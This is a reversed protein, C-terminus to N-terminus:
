KRKNNTGNKKGKILEEIMRETLDGKEIINDKSWREVNKLWNEHNYPYPTIGKHPMRPKKQEM